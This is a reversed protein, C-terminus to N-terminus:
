SACAASTWNQEWSSQALIRRPFTQVCSFNVGTTGTVFGSLRSVLLEAWSEDRWLLLPLNSIWAAGKPVFRWWPERGLSSSHWCGPCRYRQSGGCIQMSLFRCIQMSLYRHAWFGAHESIQISLFRCIQMSLFQCALFGAFRCAWFDAFRCVWVDACESTPLDAPERIQMSLFRCIQVRLFRCVWSDAFRCAWFGAHESDQLDACESIQLDARECIQASLFRCAWRKGWIRINLLVLEM